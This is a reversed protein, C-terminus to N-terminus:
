DGDVDPRTPIAVAEPVTGADSEVAADPGPLNGVNSGVFNGSEDTAEADSRQKGSERNSNRSGASNRRGRDSRPQSAVGPGNQGHVEANGAPEQSILSAVHLGRPTLGDGHNMLGLSRFKAVISAQRDTKVIRLSGNKAETLLRQEDSKLKM